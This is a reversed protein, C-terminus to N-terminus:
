PGSTNSLYYEQNRCTRIKKGDYTRFHKKAHVRIRFVIRRKIQNSLLAQNYKSSSAKEAGKNLKFQLMIVM